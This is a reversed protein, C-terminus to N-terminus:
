KDVNAVEQLLLGHQNIQPQQTNKKRKEKSYRTMALPCPFKYLNWEINMFHIAPKKKEFLIYQKLCILEDIWSGVQINVYLLSLVESFKLIEKM